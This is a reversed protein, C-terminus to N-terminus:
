KEHKEKHRKLRCYKTIVYSALTVLTFAAVMYAANVYNSYDTINEMTQITTAQL